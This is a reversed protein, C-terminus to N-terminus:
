SKKDTTNQGPERIEGMILNNVHPSILYQVVYGSAFIGLVALPLNVWIPLLRGHIWNPVIVLAAWLLFVLLLNVVNCVTTDRM